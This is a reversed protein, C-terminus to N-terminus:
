VSADRGREREKEEGKSYTSYGAAPNRLSVSLSRNTGAVPSTGPIRKCM